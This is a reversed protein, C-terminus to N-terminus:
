DHKHGEPLQILVKGADMDIVEYCISALEKEPFPEQHWGKNVIRRFSGDARLKYGQKGETLLIQNKGISYRFEVRDGAKLSMLELIEKGIKVNLQFGHHKSNYVAFSVNDPNSEGRSRIPMLKFDEFDEM